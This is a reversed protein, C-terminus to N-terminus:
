NILQQKSQIATEIDLISLLKIYFEDAKKLELLMQKDVNDFPSIMAILKCMQDVDLEKIDKLNINVNKKNLYLSFKTILKQKDIKKSIIKNNLITEGEVIRFDSSSKIEKTVSFRNVGDLNILYRGDETENFSTIKGLCGIKYLENNSDTQIMGILRKNSLAYDVMKLYRNEFINLPLNTGPFLVAGNLPFIPFKM